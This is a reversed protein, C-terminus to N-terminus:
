IVSAAVMGMTAMKVLVNAMVTAIRLAVLLVMQVAHALQLSFLDSTLLAFLTSQMFLILRSVSVFANGLQFVVYLAWMVSAVAWGLTAKRATVVDGMIMVIRVAMLPGWLVATVLQFSLLIICLGPRHCM